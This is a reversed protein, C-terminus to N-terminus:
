AITQLFKLVTGTHIYLSINDNNTEDVEVYIIRKDTSVSIGAYTDSVEIFNASGGTGDPLQSLPVKGGVLDAKRTLQEQVNQQDLFSDASNM